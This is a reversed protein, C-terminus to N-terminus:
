ASIRPDDESEAARLKTIVRKIEGVTEAEDHGFTLLYAQLAHRAMALEAESLHVVYM